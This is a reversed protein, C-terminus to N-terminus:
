RELPQSVRRPASPQVYAVPELNSAPNAASSTTVPTPLEPPAIELENRVLNVGPELSLLDEALQRDAASQVQGQLVLTEGEMVMAINGKGALAPLNAYRTTMRATFRTTLPPASISDVRFPIRVQQKNQQNQNQGQNRQQNQRFAQMMMQNGMMGGLGGAGGMGNMGGAMGSYSNSAGDGTDAGVFKGQQNGRVYREGTPAGTGLAGSTMGQGGQGSLGTLSGANSAGTSRGTRNSSTSGGLTRSGFSGSSTNGGMSFQASADAAFLGAWFLSALTLCTWRIRASM